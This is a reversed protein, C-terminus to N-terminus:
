KVLSYGYKGDDYKVFVNLFIGLICILLMTKLPVNFIYFIILFITRAINNIIETFIIYSTICYNKQYVYTNRLTITDLSSKTIGEFLTIILYALNSTITIKLFYIICMILLSLSLYDKKNKDMKKSLLYIYIISGLGTIINLIGIYSYKSKINIYIWLPLVTYLIYRLQDLTNFIYNTKPFSKIIHKIQTNPNLKIKKIKTLPIISIIMLVLVITSLTLTSTKEIIYSGIFPSFLGGLITFINYLSVNDTTKKDEIISLGYTHRGLWYFMLYSSYLISLIILSTLNKNIESLYIYTISFIISSLIMLTSVSYKKGIFYGVPIFLLCFSYKLILFLIIEKITFSMNYLILPIFIEVLLKAFSTIFIFINYKKLDSM